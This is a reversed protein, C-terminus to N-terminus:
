KIVIRFSIESSDWGTQKNDKGPSTVNAFSSAMINKTFRIM